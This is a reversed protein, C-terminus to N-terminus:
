VFFRVRDFTVFLPFHEDRLESYKQPLDARWNHDDDVDILGGEEQKQRNSKVIQALEEKTREATALSDLLKAFYEEVKGALVRSQTVFIQRPRHMTDKRTAYAREIGLM